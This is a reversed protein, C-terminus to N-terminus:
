ADRFRQCLIGRLLELPTMRLERPCEKLLPFLSNRYCGTDGPFRALPSKDAKCPQAVTDYEVCENAGPPAM